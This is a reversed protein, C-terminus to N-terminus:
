RLQFTASGAVQGNIIIDVRYTGVGLASASLNYIYQCSDIRFNSGTDASGSYAAEDIQQNGGTGTRYVAITAPPLDCTPVGDLTLAFKVPVVGRRVNFVSSGDPNIPQQVRAAYAPAPTPTPTPTATPTSTATATPTATPAPTATATVTPTATPTPTPTPSAQVEFAGTDIRGNVVRDFGPGRQDYDPPPTFNPDGADIAPSGPLLECTLNPGGNDDILGLMPNTSNQDGTANLYASANDSSLNFGRSTITGSNNVNVLNAGLGSPGADLITNGITLTAVGLNNGANYIGGGDPARNGSLTCNTVTLRANGSFGDSYIGGGRGDAYNISFTSNSITLAANGSSDGDNAIGAGFNAHNEFLISNTVTLTASGSLFGANFIGGGYGTSYNAYVNSNRITLTAAGGSLAGNNYIGGGDGDALNPGVTSDNITLTANRNYIGAGTGGANSAVWCNNLTLISTQDNYIGGGGIGCQNSFVECSNLTLVSTQANYIGGGFDSPIYGGSIRLGSITVTNGSSVYLIRFQPTGITTSRQVRLQDAGPGTITISKNVLLQSSTLTIAQGNLSSDFNIADGNVAGALAQRLSGAGSDNTNTVTITAAQTSLASLCLAGLCTASLIRCISSNLVRQSMLTKM